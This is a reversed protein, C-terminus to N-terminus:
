RHAREDSAVFTYLLDVLKAILTEARLCRVVLAAVLEVELNELDLVQASRQRIARFLELPDCSLFRLDDALLGVQIVIHSSELRVKAADFAFCLRESAVEFGEASLFVLQLTLPPLLPTLRLSRLLLALRLNTQKPVLGPLMLLLHEDQLFLPASMDTSHVHVDLRTMVTRNTSISREVPIVVLEVREACSVLFFALAENNLYAVQLRLERTLRCHPRIQAVLLMVEEHKERPVLSLSDIAGKWIYARMDQCRAQTPLSCFIRAAMAFIPKGTAGSWGSVSARLRLVSLLTAWVIIKRCRAFHTRGLKPQPCAQGNSQWARSRHKARVTPPSPRWQQPKDPPGVACPILSLNRTSRSHGACSSM